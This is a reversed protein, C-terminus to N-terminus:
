NKGLFRDMQKRRRNHLIVYVGYAAGLVLMMFKYNNTESAYHQDVIAAAAIKQASAEVSCIIAALVIALSKIATKM